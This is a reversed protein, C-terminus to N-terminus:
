NKVSFFSLNMSNTNTLRRYSDGLNINVYIQMVPNPVIFMKVKFFLNSKDEM